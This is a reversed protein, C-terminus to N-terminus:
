LPGRGIAASARDTVHCGDQIGQCQAAQLPQRQVRRLKLAITVDSRVACVRVSVIAFFVFFLFVCDHVNCM